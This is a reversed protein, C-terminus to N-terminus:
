GWRRRKCPCLFDGLAKRGLWWLGIYARTAYPCGGGLDLDRGAVAVREPGGVVREQQALQAAVQGGMPLEADGEPRPREGSVSVAMEPLM